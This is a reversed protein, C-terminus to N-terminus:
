GYWELPICTYMFLRCQPKSLSFEGVALKLEGLEEKTVDTESPFLTSNQSSAPVRSVKLM